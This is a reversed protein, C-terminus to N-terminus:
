RWRFKCEFKQHHKSDRFPSSHSQLTPIKKLWVISYFFDEYSFCRLNWNKANELFIGDFSALNDSDSSFFSLFLCFLSFALFSAWFFCPLLSDLLFFSGILSSGRSGSFNSLSALSLEISFAFSHDLHSSSSLYFKM